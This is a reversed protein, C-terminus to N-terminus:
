VCHKKFVTIFNNKTDVNFYISQKNQIEKLNNENLNNLILKEDAVKNTGSLQIACGNETLGQAINKQNDATQIIFLPTNLKCVEYAITSASTIVFKSEKIKEILEKTSLHNTVKFNKNDLVEIKNKNLGGKIIEVTNNKLSLICNLAYQSYNEPDAGGFSILIKNKTSTSNNKEFFEPRLMLYNLGLCYEKIYNSKYDTSKINPAHNIIVDAYYGPLILDDIYFLKKINNNLQKQYASDFHYGDAVVYNSYKLILNIEEDINANSDLEVIQDFFKEALTTITSNNNKTILICKFDNKLFSACSTLRSIHGLGINENGDGRFVITQM